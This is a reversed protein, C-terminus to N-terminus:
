PWRDHSGCEFASCMAAGVLDAIHLFDKGVRLRGCMARKPWDILNPHPRNNPTFRGCVVWAGFPASSGYGVNTPRLGATCRGGIILCRIGFRERPTSALSRPRGNM